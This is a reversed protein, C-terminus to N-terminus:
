SKPCVQPAKERRSIEGDRIELTVLQGREDTEDAYVCLRLEKNTQERVRPSDVFSLGEFRTVGLAFPRITEALSDGGRHRIAFAVWEDVYPAQEARGVFVTWDGRDARVRMATLGFPKVSPHLALYPRLEAYGDAREKADFDDFWQVSINEPTVSRIEPDASGSPDSSDDGSSSSQCSGLSCVLMVCGFLRQLRSSM